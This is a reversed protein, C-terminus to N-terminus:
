LARRRRLCGRPVPVGNRPAVTLAKGAKGCEAERIAWVLSVNIKVIEPAGGWFRGGGGGGGATETVGDGAGGDLGGDCTTNRDSM